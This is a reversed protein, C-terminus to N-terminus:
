TKLLKYYLLTTVPVAALLLFHLPWSLPLKMKIYYRLLGGGHIPGPFNKFNPGKLNALVHEM